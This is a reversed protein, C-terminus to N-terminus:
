RAPIVTRTETVTCKTGVPIDAYTHSRPDAPAGAPIVFAHREVGDDCAVDIVV